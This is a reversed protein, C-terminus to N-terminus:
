GTSRATAPSRPSLLLWRFGSGGDEPVGGGRRYARPPPITIAVVCRACSQACRARRDLRGVSLRSGPGRISVGGRTSVRRVRAVGARSRGSAIRSRPARTPDVAVGAGAVGDVRRELATVRSCTTVAFRSAHMRRRRDYARARRQDREGVSAQAAVGVGDLAAHGVGGVVLHPQQLRPCSRLSAACSVLNRGRPRQVSRSREGPRRTTSTDISPGPLRVVWRASRPASTM